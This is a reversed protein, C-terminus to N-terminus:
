NCFLQGLDNRRCKFLASIVRFHACDGSRVSKVETLELAVTCKRSCLKVMLSGKHYSLVNRCDESFFANEALSLYYLGAKQVKSKGIFIHKIDGSGNVAVAEAANRLRFLGISNYYIVSSRVNCLGEVYTMETGSDDALSEFPKGTGASVLDVTIHVKAVPSELDTKNYGLKCLSKGLFSAKRSIKVWVLVAYERQISFHETLYIGSRAFFALLVLSELVLSVGGGKLELAASGSIDCKPLFNETHGNGVKLAIVALKANIKVVPVALAISVFIDRLKHLYQLVLVKGILAVACKNNVNGLIVVLSRHGGNDHSLGIIGANVGGCVKCGNDLSVPIKGGVPYPVNHIVTLLKM